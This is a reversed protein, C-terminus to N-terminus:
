FQNVLPRDAAPAPHLKLLVTGSDQVYAAWYRAKIPRSRLPAAENADHILVMPLSFPSSELFSDAATQVRPKRCGGSYSVSTTLIDGTVAASNLAFRGSQFGATAGFVVPM